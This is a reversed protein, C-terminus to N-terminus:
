WVSCILEGGVMKEAAKSGTIVGQSTSVIVTGMGNYVRPLEKYGTYVRRGPTSIKKIGHIVSINQEDCKLFIQIFAKEGEVIKKVSKM